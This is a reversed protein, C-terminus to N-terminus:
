YSPICEQCQINVEGGGGPLKPLGPVQYTSWASTSAEAEGTSPNLTYAMSIYYTSTSKLVEGIGRSRFNFLLVGLIPHFTDVYCDEGFMM